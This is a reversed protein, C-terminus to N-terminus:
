IHSESGRSRTYRLYAIRQNAKSEVLDNQAKQWMAQSELYQSLTVMGTTYQNYCQRMNEMAQKVILERLAVESKMENYLNISQMLELTMKLTLDAHSNEAIEVERKAASFKRRGEGWHFLPVNVMVGGTFSPTNLLKAGNMKAGNAYSYNAVASIQPLFDSQMLKAELSKAEINKELLQYEYRSTVDLETDINHQEDFSDVVDLSRTTLPYGIYYCLNMRALVLGNEARKQQLKAENLKVEVNLMDNNTCMGSNLMKGVQRHLEEVVTCYAEAALMMEEVKVYTYFAEEAAICIDVESRAREINAVDVGLRALKTAATIKGGTYIPQAMMVGATFISGTELGLEIDPMYAYSSFIPSGSADVGVINPILEGTTADPSFTPLYGGDIKLDLSMTSFYYGGTMSFNPLYNARYAKYLDESASIKLESSKLALSMEIALERCREITLSELNQAFSSLPTIIALAIYLYIKKM